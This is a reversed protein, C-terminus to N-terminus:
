LAVIVGINVRTFDYGDSTFNEAGSKQFLGAGINPIHEVEIRLGIDEAYVIDVGAGFIPSLGNGSVKNITSPNVTSSKVNLRELSGNWYGAGFKLYSFYADDIQFLRRMAVYIGAYSAQEKVDNETFSIDGFQSIGFELPWNDTSTIAYYFTIPVFGTFRKNDTNSKADGLGFSIGVAGAAQISTTAFLLGFCFLAQLLTNKGILLSLLKQNIAQIFLLM